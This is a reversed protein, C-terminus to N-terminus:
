IQKGKWKESRMYAYSFSLLVSWYLLESVWGWFVGAKFVELVLYVYVCYTIIAAVEILLTIRSNGTGIVANLWVTAFSMLVMAVAILRILPIGQQVFGEDLGYLSLYLGPAINLGICVILACGSSLAIIKRILPLVLDSRNQGIVNSVLSNTASAFAWIFVGFFGFINRMTNSAALGTQSSNREILLYFIFWSIISIAHQFVLPGSQSVISQNNQKDWQLKEFISFEKDIGKGRIVFFIVLLGAAESIISAVAAGNFGMAPLGAHGFILAYDFFINVIAEALTGAVLYRSNNTGVFLANRMQYIFLLPLGWIRIQLFSITKQYVVPSHIVQKLIFPALFYTVLVGLVAIIMSLWIGQQFLKGIEAPRNEGARRSILAQLGNNLGYGIGAFILYYVGTISAVALAEESLHGLFINNIIFNLQPVMLALGIPAATQIIQRYSVQIQLPNM